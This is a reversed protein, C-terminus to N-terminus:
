LGENTITMEVQDKLKELEPIRKMAELLRKKIEEMTAKLTQVNEQPATKGKETVSTGAQKAYGKPDRFYGSVAERVERSSNVIWLLIFLAMMANLFDSYAVKWAGGHHGGHPKRKKRVIIIPEPNPSDPRDMHRPPRPRRYRQRRRRLRRAAAAAVARAKRKRSAPAFMRHFRGARSSGQWSRRGAEVRRYCHWEYFTIITRRRM